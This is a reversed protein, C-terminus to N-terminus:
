KKLFFRGARELVQEELMLEQLLDWLKKQHLRTIKMLEQTSKPQVLNQTIALKLEKASRRESAALCHDCNGCAHATQGFYELLQVSRCKEKSMYDLTAQLRVQATDKHIQYDQKSLPLQDDPKRNSLFTVTPSSTAWSIDIVGMKELTKLQQHLESQGIKLRKCIEQEHIEFFLQFIGPYSRVLIKLLPALHEQAIQLSYLETSGIAMKLKTKQFVGESFVLEGGKELAKLAFYISRESIDFHNAISSIDINYTEDKGSGISLQIHYCMARYVRQITQISPFRDEFDDTLKQLDHPEYYAIAEANSGDRGARGAEQFYAELNNPMEHHLVYRVDPKDIGMGFANTAVMIRRSNKLWENLMTSRDEASMGGHYIGVPLKNNHLVRAVEKVSRRTQCYVIGTENPRDLCQQLISQLKNEVSYCQYHLNKREFNAEFKKPNSLGLNSCIDDQVKKTATATLAIIPVDPHHARLDIIERYAPRFDHGWESICHAEDVVILGVSMKKFREVFLRTQVREPSLYLFDYAGFVANDLLIDIDRKKLNSHIACARIGKKQLNQVQDQMLAILPSIVLTIGERALGPVQFCISKGGGTPLLAFTDYGYIVSDAIDEQLPRFSNFGWYKFLIDRSKELKFKLPTEFNAKIAAQFRM